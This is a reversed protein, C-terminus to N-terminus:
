IRAENKKKVLIILLAKKKIYKYKQNILPYRSHVLCWSCKGFGLFIYIYRGIFNILILRRREKEIDGAERDGFIAGGGM